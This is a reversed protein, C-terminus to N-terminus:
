EYGTVRLLHLVGFQCLSKASIFSAQRMAESLRLGKEVSALFSGVYVDGAGTLDQIEVPAVAPQENIVQGRRIACSGHSGMTVILTPTIQSPRVIEQLLGFEAENIFIYEICGLFPVVQSFQEKFSGLIFSATTRKAGQKIFYDFVKATALPWTCCVHVQSSAYRLTLAYDTLYKAVGAFSLIRPPFELDDYHLEFRCTQEGIQKIASQGFNSVLFTLHEESLDTGVVSVIIPDGGSVKYGVALNLAAGGLCERKPANAVMISDISVIGVITLGM